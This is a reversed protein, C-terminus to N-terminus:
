KSKKENQRENPSPTIPPLIPHLINATNVHSNNMTYDTTIYSSFSYDFRKKKKFLIMSNLPKAALICFEMGMLTLIYM